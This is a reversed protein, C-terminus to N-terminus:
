VKNQSKGKAFLWKGACDKLLINTQKVDSTSECCYAMLLVTERLSRWRLIHYHCLQRGLCRFQVVPMLGSSDLVPITNYSHFIVLEVAM